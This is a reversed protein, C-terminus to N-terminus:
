LIWYAPRGGPPLTLFLPIQAVSACWYPASRRVGAESPGLCGDCGCEKERVVCLIALALRRAVSMAFLFRARRGELTTGSQIQLGSLTAPLSPNAGCLGITWLNARRFPRRSNSHWQARIAGHQMQSM